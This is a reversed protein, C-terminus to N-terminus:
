EILAADHTNSSMYTVPTRIRAYCFTLAAVMEGCIVRPHADGTWQAAPRPVLGRPAGAYGASERQNRRHRAAALFAPASPKERRSQRAHRAGSWHDQHAAGPHVILLRAYAAGSYESFIV